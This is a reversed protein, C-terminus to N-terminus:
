SAGGTPIPQGAIFLDATALNRYYDAKVTLGRARLVESLMAYATRETADLSLDAARQGNLDLMVIPGMTPSDYAQACASTGDAFDLRILDPHIM